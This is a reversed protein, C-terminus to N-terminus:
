MAIIFMLFVINFCLSKKSEFILVEKQTLRMYPTERLIARFTDLNIEGNNDSIPRCAQTIFSSFLDPTLGDLGDMESLSTANEIVFARSELYSLSNMKEIMTAAHYAFSKINMLNDSLIDNCWYFISLIGSRNLNLLPTSELAKICCLLPLSSSPEKEYKRINSAAFFDLKSVLLTNLENHPLKYILSSIVSLKYARFLITRTNERSAMEYLSLTDDPHSSTGFKLLLYNIEIRSLDNSPSRIVRVLEEFSAMPNEPNFKVRMINDSIYNATVELDESYLRRALISARIDLKKEISGDNATGQV